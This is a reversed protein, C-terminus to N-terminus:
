QVAALRRNLDALEERAERLSRQARELRAPDPEEALVAGGSQFRTFQALLRAEPMSFYVRAFDRLVRFKVERIEGPQLLPQFAVYEETKHGSEEPTDLRLRVFGSEVARGTGNHVRMRVEATGDEPAILVPDTIGLEALREGEALVDEHHAINAEVGAMERRLGIREAEALLETGSMGHIEVSETGPVRGQQVARILDLAKDFARQQREDLTRRVEASSKELNAADIRPESCAVTWM